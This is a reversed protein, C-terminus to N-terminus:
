SAEVVSQLGSSFFDTRWEVRHSRRLELWVERPRMWNMSRSFAFSRRNFNQTKERSSSEPSLISCNYMASLRKNKLGDRGEEKQVNANKLKVMPFDIRELPLRFFRESNRLVM